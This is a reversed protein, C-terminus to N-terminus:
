SSYVQLDSLQGAPWGTNATFTLMVYRVDAAPFTVTVTNGSGTQWSNNSLTARSAAPTSVQGDVRRGTSGDVGVPSRGPDADSRAGWGAGCHRGPPV